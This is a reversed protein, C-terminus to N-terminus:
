YKISRVMEYIGNIYSIHTYQFKVQWLILYRNILIYSYYDPSPIYHGLCICKSGLETM